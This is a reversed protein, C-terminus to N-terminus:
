KKNYTYTLYEDDFNDTFVNKFKYDSMTRLQIKTYETLSDLIEIIKENRNIKYVASVLEQDTLEEQWFIDEKTDIYPDYDPIRCNEYENYQEELQNFTDVYEGYEDYEDVTGDPKYVLYIKDENSSTDITKIGDIKEEIYNELIYDEIINSSQKLNYNTYGWGDLSFTKTKYQYSINKKYTTNSYWIGNDWTGNNENLIYYKNKLKKSTTLFSIKNFGGLQNELHNVMVKDDLWIDGMYKLYTANFMRTDSFEPNTDDVFDIIGNHAFVTNRNVNFPHCNEINTKGSTKIRCHIMIPSTKSHEKQIKLAQKIYIDIDMTKHVKIKNDKKDIYAIGFGDSNNKGMTKLTEKDIKNNEPIIAIICM